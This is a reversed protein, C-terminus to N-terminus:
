YHGVTLYIFEVPKPFRHNGRGFNNRYTTTVIFNERFCLREINTSNHLSKGPYQAEKQSYRSHRIGLRRDLNTNQRFEGVYWLFEQHASKAQDVQFLTIGAM